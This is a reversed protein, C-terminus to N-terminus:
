GPLPSAKGPVVFGSLKAHPLAPGTSFVITKGQKMVNRRLDPIGPIIELHYVRGPKWGEAPKVHITKRHWSTRVEGAVPSLVVQRGIGAIGGAGTGGAMEDVVEDFHIIADGSFGHLVAGSEPLTVVVRPPTSDPPGGPPDGMSACGGALVNAAIM